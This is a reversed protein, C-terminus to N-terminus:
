DSIETFGDEDAEPLTIVPCPSETLLREKVDHSLLRSLRGKERPKFVIATADHEVASAVIEDVVDTGARLETQFGDVTELLEEGIEFWGRAEQELAEPSTTDIYGKTQEIVYLLNVLEVTEDLQPLLAECTARTDEENSIPVIIRHLLSDTM